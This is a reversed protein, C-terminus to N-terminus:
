IQYGEARLRAIMRRQIEQGVVRGWQQGIVMAEATIQPLKKVVSRGVESRYFTLM